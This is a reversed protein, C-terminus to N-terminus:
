DEMIQTRLWEQHELKDLIKQLQKIRKEAKALLERNDKNWKIKEFSSVFIDFQKQM